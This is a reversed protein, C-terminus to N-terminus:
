GPISGGRIELCRVPDFSLHPFLDVKNLLMPESALFMHPCKLPKDEAATGIVVKTREGLDFLAPCVLNGVNENFAM